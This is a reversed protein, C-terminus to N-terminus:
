ANDDEKSTKVSACDKLARRAIDGAYNNHAAIRRLANLAISLRNGNKTLGSWKGNSVSM